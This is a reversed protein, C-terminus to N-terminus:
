SDSDEDAASDGADGAHAPTGSDPGSDARSDPGSDPATYGPVIPIPNTGDNACALVLAGPLIVAPVFVFVWRRLTVAIGM